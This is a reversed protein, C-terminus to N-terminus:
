HLIASPTTDTPQRLRTDLVSLSTWSNYITLRRHGCAPTGLTPHTSRVPFLPHHILRSHRGLDPTHDLLCVSTSPPTPWSPTRSSHVGGGRPWEVGRMRAPRAPTQQQQGLSPFGRHGAVNDQLRAVTGAVAGCGRGGHGLKRATWVLPPRCPSPVQV